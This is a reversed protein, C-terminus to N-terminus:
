GSKPGALCQIIRGVAPRALASVAQPLPEPGRPKRVSARDVNLAYINLIM